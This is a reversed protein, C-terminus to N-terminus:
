DALVISPLASPGTGITYVIAFDGPITGYNQDSEVMLLATTNEAPTFTKGGQSAGIAAATYATDTSNFISGGGKYRATVWVDATCQNSGNFRDDWFVNYVTGDTVPFSFYRIDSRTALTVLDPDEEWVGEILQIPNAASGEATDPVEGWPRFNVTSYTVSFKGTFSSSLAKVKVEVTGTRNATFNSNTGGTASNTTSGFGVTCGEFIYSSEGKYRASTIVSAFGDGASVSSSYYERTWVHYVTNSVVPFSYWAETSSNPLNGEIWDGRTLPTTQPGAPETPCGAMLIGIVAVLAIIGLVPAARAKLYNRM